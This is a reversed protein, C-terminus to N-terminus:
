GAAAKRNAIRREAAMVIAARIEAATSLAPNLSLKQRGALQRLDDVSDIAGLAALAAARGATRVVVIVNPSFPDFEAAVPPAAAGTPPETVERQIDHRPAGRRVRLLAVEQRLQRVLRDRDEAPLDLHSKLLRRFFADQAAGSLAKTKKSM